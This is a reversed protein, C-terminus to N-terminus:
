MPNIPDLCTIGMFHRLDVTLCIGTALFDTVLNENAFFSCVSNENDMCHSKIECDDSAPVLLELNVCHNSDKVFQKARFVPTEVCGFFPHKNTNAPNKFIGSGIFPKCTGSCYLIFPITTYRPSNENMIGRLQQISYNCSTSCGDDTVENQAKIIKRITDSVCDDMTHKQEFARNRNYCGM